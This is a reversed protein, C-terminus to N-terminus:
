EECVLLECDMPEVKRNTMYTEVDWITGDVDIILGNRLIAAHEPLRLLGYDGDWDVTSRVRLTHGLRKAIRQMTRTWLGKRGQHRDSLTTARLVDEYSLGLLMALAVIGCDNPERNIVIRTVAAASVTAGDLPM